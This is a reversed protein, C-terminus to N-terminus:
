PASSSAPVNLSPPQRRNLAGSCCLTPLLASGMAQRCNRPLDGILVIPDIGDQILHEVPKGAGSIGFADRDEAADDASRGFAVHDFEVEVPAEGERAQRRRAGVVDGPM